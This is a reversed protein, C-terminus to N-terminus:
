CLPCDDEYTNEKTFYEEGIIRLRAAIYKMMRWFMERKLLEGQM